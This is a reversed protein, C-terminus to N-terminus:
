PAREEAPDCVRFELQSRHRQHERVFMGVVADKAGQRKATRSGGNMQVDIVHVPKRPPGDLGPGRHHDFGGILPLAFTLATDAVREPVFPQEPMLGFVHRWLLDLATELGLEFGGFWASCRVPPARLSESTRLEWHSQGTIIGARWFSYVSLLSTMFPKSGSSSIHASNM